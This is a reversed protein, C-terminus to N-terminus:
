VLLNMCSWAGVLRPKIGESQKRSSIALLYNEHEKEGREDKLAAVAFSRTLLHFNGESM